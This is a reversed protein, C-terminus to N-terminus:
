CIKVISRFDNDGNHMQKSWLGLIGQGDGKPGRNEWLIRSVSKNKSREKSGRREAASRQGCGIFSLECPPTVRNGLDPDTPDLVNLDQSDTHSLDQSYRKSVGLVTSYFQSWDIPGHTKSVRETARAWPMNKTKFSYIWGFLLFCNLTSASARVRLFVNLFFEKRPTKTTKTPLTPWWDQSGPAGDGRKNTSSDVGLRLGEAFWGAIMGAM